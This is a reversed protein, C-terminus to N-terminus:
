DLDNMFTIEFFVGEGLESQVSIEGNLQEKVITHIINMGLGTGGNERNTTYFPVFLKEKTEQSMGKGNDKYVMKILNDERTFGIYIEGGSLDGFGHILSNMILNTLIQTIASPYSKLMLMDECDIVFKHNQQKYEHKLSVLVNNILEKVNFTAELENSQGVAIAKFSKILEAARNLNNYLVTLDESIEHAQEIMEPSIPKDPALQTMLEQHTKEIYSNVTIAIGLPTNIEHTIGSVLGGLTAMKEHAMYAKEIKEYQELSEATENFGTTLASMEQIQSVPVRVTYDRGKIQTHANILRKIPPLVIQRLIWVLVGGIALLFLIGLFLRFYLESMFNSKYAETSLIVGIVLEQGYKDQYIRYDFHYQSQNVKFLQGQQLETHIQIRKGAEQIRVDPYDTTTYRIYNNDKKAYVDQLSSTAVLKGSPEAIFIISEKDIHFARLFESIRKLALDATLVGLLENQNPSYVPASVGIGLADQGAYKYVPYWHIQGFNVATKYWDRETAIFRGKKELLMGKTDNGLVQYRNFTSGEERESTFLDIEGTLVQRGAGVYEGNNFGMSIYTMYPTNRLQGIFHASLNERNETDLTGTEIMEKNIQVNQIAEIFFDDLQSSISKSIVLAHSYLFENILKTSIQYSLYTSLIVALTFLLVVPLIIYTSLPLKSAHSKINKPSQSKRM